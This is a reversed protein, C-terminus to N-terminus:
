YLSSQTRIVVDLYSHLKRLREKHDGGGNPKDNCDARGSFMHARTFVDIDAVTKCVPLERSMAGMRASNGISLRIASLRKLAPPPKDPLNM